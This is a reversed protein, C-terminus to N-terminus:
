IGEGAGWKVSQAIIAGPAAGPLVQGDGGVSGSQVVCWCSSIFYRRPGAPNIQDGPLLTPNLHLLDQLERIEDHCRIRTMPRTHGTPDIIHPEM